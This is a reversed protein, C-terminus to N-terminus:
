LFGESSTVDVVKTVNEEHLRSSQGTVKVKSRRSLYSLPSNTQWIHVGHILSLLLIRLNTYRDIM